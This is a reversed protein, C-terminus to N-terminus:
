RHCARRRAAAARGHVRTCISTFEASEGTAGLARARGIAADDPEGLLAHWQETADDHALWSLAGELRERLGPPVGIADSHPAAAALRLDSEVARIRVSLADAASKAERRLEEAAQVDIQRETEVLTLGGLVLLPVLGVAAFLWLLQRGLTSALPQWTLHPRRM